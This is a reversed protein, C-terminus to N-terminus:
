PPPEGKRVAIMSEAKSAVSKLGWSLEPIGDELLSQAQALNTPASAFSLTFPGESGITVYVEPASSTLNSFASLDGSLLGQVPQAVDLTLEAVTTSDGPSPAFTM